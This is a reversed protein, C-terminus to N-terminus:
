KGGCELESIQIKPTKRCMLGRLAKLHPVPDIDNLIDTVLWHNTFM